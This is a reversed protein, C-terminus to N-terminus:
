GSGLGQVLKAAQDGIRKAFGSATWDAALLELRSRGAVGSGTGSIIAEALASPDSSPVLLVEKGDRI